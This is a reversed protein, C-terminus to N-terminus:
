LNFNMDEGIMSISEIYENKHNRGTYILKGKKYVLMTCLPMEQWGEKEYPVTAFTASSKEIRQFLTGKMNSHVYYQESDFLILNIKNRKTIAAIADEIVECRQKSDLPAGNQLEAENIRDVFYLLIRESDTNGRQVCNYKLLTMGSFVTGNHAMVWRRGSNDSLIFPHCNESKLNGVTALRIHGILSNQPPLSSIIGDLIKSKNACVPETVVNLKKNRYSALGWGHPHRVSHSYFERLCGRLDRETEATFGFLECM